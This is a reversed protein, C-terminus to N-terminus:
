TKDVSIGVNLLQWYRSNRPIAVANLDRQKQVQQAQADM